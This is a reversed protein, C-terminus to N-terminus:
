CLNGKQATMCSLGKMTGLGSNEKLRLLNLGILGTYAMEPPTDFNAL